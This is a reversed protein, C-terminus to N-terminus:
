EKESREECSATDDTLLCIRWKGSEVHSITHQEYVHCHARLYISIHTVYGNSKAIAILGTTVGGLNAKAIGLSMEEFECGKNVGRGRRV